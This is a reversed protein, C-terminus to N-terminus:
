TRKLRALIRELLIRGYRQTTMNHATASSTIRRKLSKPVELSFIVIPDDDRDPMSVRLATDASPENALILSAYAAEQETLDDGVAVVDVVPELPREVEESLLQPLWHRFKQDHRERQQRLERRLSEPVRISWMIIPDARGGTARPKPAESAAPAPTPDTDPKAPGGERARKLKSFTM